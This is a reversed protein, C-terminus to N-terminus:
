YYNQSIEETKSEFFGEYGSKSTMYRSLWLRCTSASLFIQFLLPTTVFRYKPNEFKREKLPFTSFYNGRAINWKNKFKLSLKFAIFLHGHLNWFFSVGNQVTLLSLKLFINSSFIRYWSSSFFLKLHDNKPSVPKLIVM